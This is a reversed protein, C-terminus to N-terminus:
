LRDTTHQICGRHSTARTTYTNITARPIQQTIHHPTALTSTTHISWEDSRTKVEQVIEDLMMRYHDDVRAEQLKKQIYKENHEVFEQHTKPMLYKQDARIYWNTGPQLQGMLKFGTSLENYLIDAQPYEIMKLLHIFVPVQTFQQATTYTHHVHPPLKDLWESTQDEMEFVLNSIEDVVQRRFEAIPTFLHGHQIVWELTPDLPKPTYSTDLGTTWQLHEQWSFQPMYQEHTPKPLPGFTTKTALWVQTARQIPSTAIGTAPTHIVDMVLLIILWIASPIHWTNGLAKNRHYETTDHTMNSTHKGSFGMMQERM